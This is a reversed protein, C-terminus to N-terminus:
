IRIGMKKLTSETWIAFEWGNMEAYKIAAKWKCVNVAYTDQANKFSKTMRGSSPPKPPRTQAEPKVEILLKKGSALEVAFDIFYRHDRQDILSFYRVVVSESSWSVVMSSNDFFKMCAKEWSSRAVINDPNSGRYKAKNELIFLSKNGAM